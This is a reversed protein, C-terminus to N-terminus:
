VNEFFEIRDGAKLTVVAKKIPATTYERSGFRKSKGPLSTTNIKTVKVKFLKEIAKKIEPKTASPVVAFTVKNEKEKLRNSKETVVPRLIIQYSDM